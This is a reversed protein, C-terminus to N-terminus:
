KSAAPKRALTFFMPTFIGAKAGKVLGDAGLCLMSHVRTSGKPSLGLKEMCYLMCHTASRGVPTAKLNFWGPELPSEWPVESTLSLDEEELVEFGVARLTAVNDPISQIDPLANGEQFIDFTYM